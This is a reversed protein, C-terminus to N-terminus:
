KRRKLFYNLLPHKLAIERNCVLLLLDGPIGWPYVFLDTNMQIDIWAEPTGTRSQLVTRERDRRLLYKVDWRPIWVQLASLHQEAWCSIGGRARRQLAQAAGPTGRPEAWLLLPVLTMDGTGAMVRGWRMAEADEWRQVSLANKYGLGRMVVPVKWGEMCGVWRGASGYKGVWNM